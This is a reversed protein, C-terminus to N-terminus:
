QDRERPPSGGRSSSRGRSRRTSLVERTVDVFAAAGLLVQLIRHRPRTPAVDFVPANEAAVAERLQQSSQGESRLQSHQQLWFLYAFAPMVLVVALAAVVLEIDLSSSTSSASGVSLSTPLLYPYQAWGWAAIVSAVAIGAVVRVLRTRHILVLGMAAAGAAASLLVLPYAVHLLRQFVYPAANHMLWLNIIALVGTLVGAALVRVTFYGALAENGRRRCDAALYVAGIFACTAVFLGGTVLPVAGTWTSPADGAPHARVQGTAVAGVAAGLFFPAVFSSGAFLATTLAKTPLRDAEERFAFGSGRLVIGLLSLALPVFLTTMVAAFATSFATWFIVLGFIIWVNNAEWVAVISTRIAERPAQGRSRGGALADWIGAGLDAGALLAYTAMTALLVVLLTIAQWAPNM